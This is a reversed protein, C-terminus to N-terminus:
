PLWTSLLATLLKFDYKAVHCYDVGVSRLGYQFNDLYREKNAPYWYIILARDTTEQERILKTLQAVREPLVEEAFMVMAVKTTAIHDILSQEHQHSTVVANLTQLAEVMFESEDYHYYAVQVGKLSYRQHSERKYRLPITVTFRSGIDIESSVEISASLLHAIQRIVSLGVGVGEYARTQSSDIQFFPTFIDEIYSSSIGIGTDIINIEWRTTENFHMLQSEITIQGSQTFKIANDILTTLIQKIKSTDGELTYDVHHIKSILALGKYKAAPEFHELLDAIIQLPNFEVSSVIVQGKEIKNLQIIQELTLELHQSGKRIIDLTDKQEDNMYHSDLLQLGGSIANLSTKLEHTIMSQFNHRQMNLSLDKNHLQKEFDALGAYDRKASRVRDFLVILTKKILILEQFEFRQQIVPLRELEPDNIVIDCAMALKKIDETPWNLKRLIFAVSGLGVVITMLWLWINGFFWDVRLRKIDITVNIYGILTNRDTLEAEAKEVDIGSVDLSSDTPLPQFSEAGQQISNSDLYRSTVARNISVTDAFLANYWNKNADEIAAQNLNAIPRDSSYFVISQIAPDEDLLISVQKAVLNAGDPTSASNAILNAIQHVNFRKQQYHYVFSYVFSLLFAIVLAVVVGQLISLRIIKPITKSSFISM